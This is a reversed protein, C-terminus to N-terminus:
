RHTGRLRALSDLATDRSHRYGARDSIHLAKRHLAEAQAFRGRGHHAVAGVNYADAETATSGVVAAAAAAEDALDTAADFHGRHNHVMARGVLADARRSHFALEESLAQQQLFQREADRDLGQALLVRGLSGLAGTTGATYDIRAALDAAARAHRTAPELRDLGLFTDALYVLTSVQARHEGTQRRLRLAEDCHRVAGHWEGLAHEVAGLMHLAAARERPRRLTAWRRAASSFLREAAIPHGGGWWALGATFEMRAADTDDGASRRPRETLPTWDVLHPRVQQAARLAETLSEALAPDRHHVSEVATVLTERESLLWASAEADTAFRVPAAGPLPVLELLDPFLRRAAAVAVRGLYVALRTEADRVANPDGPTITGAVIRVSDTMAYRGGNRCVILGAAVLKALAAGTARDSWGAFAAIAPASMGRSRTAALWTVLERADHDIHRYAPEIDASRPAGAAPPRQRTRAVRRWAGKALTLVRRAQEHDAAVACVFAVFEPNDEPARPLHLGTCWSRLTSYGIGHQRATATVRSTSLPSANLLNALEAAFMRKAANSEAM